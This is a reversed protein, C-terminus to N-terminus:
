GRVELGKWSTNYEAEAAKLEELADGLREKLRSGSGSSSLQDWV